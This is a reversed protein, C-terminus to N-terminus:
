QKVVWTEDISRGRVFYEKDVLVNEVLEHHSPYPGKIAKETGETVLDKVENDIEKLADETTIGMEILRNKMRIIPDRKNRVEQVEERTRYSIGPDSMSHGYYRYTETELLIPGNQQAWEKAYRAAEYVAFIDQGDVWLGPIYDGRCYYDTSASSRQMSTGMGYKNNECVFVVPINWLKAM